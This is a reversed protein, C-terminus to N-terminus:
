LVINLFQAGRSNHFLSRNKAENLIDPHMSETQKQAPQASPPSYLLGLVPDVDNREFSFRRIGCLCIVALLPICVKIKYLLTNLISGHKTDNIVEIAGRGFYFFHGSFGRHFHNFEKILKSSAEAPICCFSIQTVFPRAMTHVASDPRVVSQM